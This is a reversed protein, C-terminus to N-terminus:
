LKHCLSNRGNAKRLKTLRYRAIIELYGITDQRHGFDTAVIKYALINITRIEGKVSKAYTLRKNQQNNRM